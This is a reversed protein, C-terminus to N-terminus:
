NNNDEKKRNIANSVIDLSIYGILIGWIAMLVPSSKLINGEVFRGVKAWYIMSFCVGLVIGIIHYKNFNKKFFDDTNKM